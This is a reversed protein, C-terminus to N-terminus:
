MLEQKVFELLMVFSMVMVIYDMEVVLVKMLYIRLAHFLIEM